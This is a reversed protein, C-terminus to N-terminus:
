QVYTHTKGFTLGVKYKQLLGCKEHYIIRNIHPQTQNELIASHITANVHSLSVKYTDKEM